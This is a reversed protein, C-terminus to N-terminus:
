FKKGHRFPRNFNADMKVQVGQGLDIAFGGAYDQVRIELDALEEAENQHDSKRIAEVLESIETVMLMAKECKKLRIFEDLSITISEAQDGNDYLARHPVWHKPWFGQHQFWRFFNDAIQRSLVAWSPGVAGFQTQSVQRLQEHINAEKILGEAKDLPSPEATAPYAQVKEDEPWIHPNPPRQIGVARGDVKDAERPIVKNEMAAYRGNSDRNGM